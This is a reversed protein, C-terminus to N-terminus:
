ALETQYVDSLKDKLYAAFPEVALPGGVVRQLLEDTTFKSGHRHVNERLWDRLGGLEGGALQADLDPIEEGVKAWLQAAVLNGLAYSPFYGFLGAAWHVDQMWGHRDDPVDLGLYENLKANWAERLDGVSLAGSILDRELEFRVMIHLGYSAEDAEIRILSRSVRNVARYLVDPELAALSAPFLERLQPALAEAFPRGRGVINEWMRSQSEHMAYSEIHALPTRALAPSVQSEYMGHGSEHMATFVATGIYAPDYSCTIRVDGFGPSAQFPHVSEDIRWGAPDYGMMQTLRRVLERQQAVPFDGHLVGDDLPLEAVAAVVPVIAAKLASFIVTTQATTLGPEFDDLLADYAVDFGDFCEAYRRALEVNRELYPEFTSYDGAARAAEWASESLAHARAMDAALESPVSRAKEWQRRTNLVLRADDGDEASGSCEAAAAADLLRGTEAATFLDHEIRGLTSLMEARAEAGAPPMMVQQDWGLLMMAASLDHVEGLRSRLQSM